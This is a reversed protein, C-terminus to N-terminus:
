SNHEKYALNKNKGEHMVIRLKKDRKANKLSYQGPKLGHNLAWANAAKETNFTKPRKKRVTPHFFNDHRFRTSLGFKRKVRTHVKAM